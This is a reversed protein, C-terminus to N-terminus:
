HRKHEPIGWFDSNLGMGDPTAYSTFAMMAAIIFILKKM